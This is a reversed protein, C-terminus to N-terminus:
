KGLPRPRILTRYIFHKQLRIAFANCSDSMHQHAIGAISRVDNLFRKQVQGAVSLVLAPISRELDQNETHGNRCDPISLVPPIPPISGKM